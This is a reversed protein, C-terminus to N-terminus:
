SATIIIIKYHYYHILSSDFDEMSIWNKIQKLGLNNNRNALLYNVFILVLFILV